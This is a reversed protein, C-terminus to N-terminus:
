FQVGASLVFRTAKNDESVLDANGGNIKGEGEMESISQYLYGLGGVFSVSENISGLVGVGAQFHFGFGSVELDFDDNETKAYTAGLAGSGFFRWKGENFFFRVLGGIDVTQIVNESDDGEATMIALRPGLTWAGGEMPINYAAAVGFNGELDDDGGDIEGKQNGLEVKYKDNEVEANGGVMAEISVGGIGKEAAALGPSLLCTTAVLATVPRLRRM